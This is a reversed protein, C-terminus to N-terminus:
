TKVLSTAKTMGISPTVVVFKTVGVLNGDPDCLQVVGHMYNRLRTVGVTMIMDCAVHLKEVM